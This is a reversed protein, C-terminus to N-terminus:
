YLKYFRGSHFPENILHKGGAHQAMYELIPKELAISALEDFAQNVYTQLMTTFYERKTSDDINPNAMSKSLTTLKDKLEKVEKYRKIKAERSQM